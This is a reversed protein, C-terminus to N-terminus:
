CIIGGGLVKEGEYFVASQGPTIAREPKNFVIKIKNQNIKEAECLVANHRYRIKVELTKGAFEPDLINIWNLDSIIMEKKYVEKNNGVILRNKKADFGVVYKPTKNNIFTKLDQDIGKRQGVTYNILGKHKGIIKGDTTVIDGSMFNKKDLYRKLFNRYDRDGFFCIEQSEPKEKIPLEWRIALQRVKKKVMKGLPFLAYSLQKQSLRYLMYSQDKIEDEGKLLVFHKNEKKIRAYHGTAMKDCGLSLAKQLMLDFKIKQNCIICPNPTRLKEYEDLFDDVVAKKFEDRANIVYFPIDLVQAVRRADFLAETDCCRNEGKVKCLPDSWLKLFLGIVEHGEDKLKKAAVASDVGGSLGIAIKLKKSM